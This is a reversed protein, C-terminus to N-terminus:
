GGGGPPSWRRSSSLVAAYVCAFFGEEENPEGEAECDGDDAEETEDGCEDVGATTM